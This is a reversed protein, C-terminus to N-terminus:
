VEKAVFAAGNYRLEYRKSPQLITNITVGNITNATVAVTNVTAPTEIMIRQGSHWVTPVEDGLTFANRYTGTSWGTVSWEYLRMANVTGQRFLLRYHSYQTTNSFEWTVPATMTGTRTAVDTWTTGNNSGQLRILFDDGDQSTWHCRMRTIIIPTGFNVAIWMEGTIDDQDQWSSTSDGDFAKDPRFINSSSGSATVIYNGSQAGTDTVNTWGSQPIPNTGSTASSVVERTATPLYYRGTLRSHIISNFTAKDLPTGPVTPNDARVLDYTNVAGSVPNLTVRGPHEAVRDLFNVEKM